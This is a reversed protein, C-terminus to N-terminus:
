EGTEEKQEIEEAINLLFDIYALLCVYSANFEDYHEEEDEYIHSQEPEGLWKDFALYWEDSFRFEGWYNKM